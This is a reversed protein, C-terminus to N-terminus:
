MSSYPNYWAKVPAKLATVLWLINVVVFVVGLLLAILGPGGYAMAAVLGVVTSVVSLVALVIGLVRAWNRGKKLFTYVLGYVVAAVVLVIVTTLTAFTQARAAMATAEEASLDMQQYMQTVDTGAILALVQNILYIAASVLTLTLLKQVEPPPAVDARRDGGYQQADYPGAGHQEGSPVYRPPGGAPRSAEPEDPNPPYSPTSMAHEGEPDALVAVAGGGGM